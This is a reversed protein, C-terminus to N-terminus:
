AGIRVSWAARSMRLSFVSCMESAGLALPDPLDLVRLLAGLVVVNELLFPFRVAPCRMRRVVSESGDAGLVGLLQFASDGANLLCGDLCRTLRTPEPALLGLREGGGGEWKTSADSL